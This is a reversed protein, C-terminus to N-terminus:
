QRDMIKEFEKENWRTGREFVFLENPEDKKFHPILCLRVLRNDGNCVQYVSYLSPKGFHVAYKRDDSTMIGDHQPPCPLQLAQGRQKQMWWMGHSLLKMSEKGMVKCTIWWDYRNQYLPNLSPEVSAADIRTLKLFGQSVAETVNEMACLDANFRKLNTFHAREHRGASPDPKISELKRRWDRDIESWILVRLSNAVIDGMQDIKEMSMGLLIDMKEGPKRMVKRMMTEFRREPWQGRPWYLYNKGYEEILEAKFRELMETVDEHIVILDLDGPSLAGRAYSGFVYLERVKAPYRGEEIARVIREIQRSAKQRDM